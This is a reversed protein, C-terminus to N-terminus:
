LLINKSIEFFMKKFLGSFNSFLILFHKNNYGFFGTLYWFTTANWIDLIFWSVLILGVLNILSVLFHIYLLFFNICLVNSSTRFLSIGILMSGLQVSVCFILLYIASTLSSDLTAYQLTTFNKTLAVYINNSRSYYSMISAILLGITTLFRIPIVIKDIGVAM